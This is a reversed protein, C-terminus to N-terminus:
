NAAGDLIANFVEKFVFQTGIIFLFVLVIFANFAAFFWVFPNAKGELVAEEPDEPDVRADVNKGIPYRNVIKSITILTTTYFSGRTVQDGEYKKGDVEYEYRVVAEYSDQMNTGRSSFNTPKQLVFSETITAPVTPWKRTAVSREYMWYNLAIMASIALFAFVYEFYAFLGFLSDM